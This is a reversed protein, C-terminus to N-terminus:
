QRINPPEKHIVATNVIAYPETNVTTPTLITMSTPVCGLQLLLMRTEICQNTGNNVVM